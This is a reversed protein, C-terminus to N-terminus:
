QWAGSGDSYALRAQRTSTIMVPSWPHSRVYGPRHRGRKVRTHASRGLHAYTVLLRYALLLMTVLLFLRLLGYLASIAGMAVWTPSGPWMAECAACLVALVLAGFTLWAAWIAAHAVQATTDDM